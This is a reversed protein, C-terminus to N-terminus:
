KFDNMGLCWPNSGNVQKGNFKSGLIQYFVM